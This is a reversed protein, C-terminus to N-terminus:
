TSDAPPAPSTTKGRRVMSPPPPPRRRGTRPIPPPPRPLGMKVPAKGDAATTAARVHKPIRPPGKPKGKPLPPTGGKFGQAGGETPIPPPARQPTAKTRLQPSNSRSRLRPKMTLKPMMRVGGIRNAIEKDKENEPLFGPSPRAGSPPNPRAGAPFPPRKRVQGSPKTHVSTSSTESSAPKQLAGPPPPRPRITKTEAAGTTEKSSPSAAEPPPTRIGSEPGSSVKGDPTGGVNDTNSGNNPRRMSANSRTTSLAAQSNGVQLIGKKMLEGKNPRKKFFSSLVSITRASFSNEKMKHGRKKLKGTGGSKAGKMTPTVIGSFGGMSKWRKKDAERASHSIEVKYNESCEEVYNAPIWGFKCTRMNKAYWWGSTAMKTVKVIDGEALSLENDGDGKYEATSRFWCREFLKVYNSPFIGTAENLEGQWWEEGHESELQLVEVTDGAKMTLEMEEQANYDFLVIAARSPPGNRRQELLEKARELKEHLDFLMKVSEEAPRAPRPPKGSLAMLDATSKDKLNYDLASKRDEICKKIAEKWKQKEGGDKFVMLFRKEPTVIEFQFKYRAGDNDELDRLGFAANIDAQWHIKYKSTLQSSDAYVFLDNFLFFQYKQKYRNGDSLKACHGEMIFQRSPAVFHTGAIFKEQVARVKRSRDMRKVAENIHTASKKILDLAETLDPYDSISEDTRKVLEQLLLRYRPVRQIPLILLGTLQVTRQKQELFSKFANFKRSGSKEIKGLLETARDHNGVYDTYMKFYPAFELFIKGIGKGPTGQDEADNNKKLEELFHTNVQFITEINGFLTSMEKQDLPPPKNAAAAESCLKRLPKIYLQLLQNLSGVYTEETSLIEARVKKAIRAQKERKEADM